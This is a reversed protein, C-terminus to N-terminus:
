TQYIRRAPMTCCPLCATVARVVGQRRREYCNISHQAVSFFYSVHGGGRCTLSLAHAIDQISIDAVAMNMPDIKNGTYTNMTAM